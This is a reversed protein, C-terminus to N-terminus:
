WDPITVHGHRVMQDIVLSDQSTKCDQMLTSARGALFILAPGVFTVLGEVGVGDEREFRAVFAGRANVCVDAAGDTADAEVVALM